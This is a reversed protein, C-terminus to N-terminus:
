LVRFVFCISFLIVFVIVPSLHMCFIVYRPSHKSLFFLCTRASSVLVMLNDRIDIDRSVASLSVLSFQKSTLSCRNGTVNLSFMTSGSESACNFQRTCAVGHFGVVISAWIPGHFWPSAENSAVM